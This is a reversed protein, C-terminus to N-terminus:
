ANPTETVKPQATAAKLPLECQRWQDDSLKWM